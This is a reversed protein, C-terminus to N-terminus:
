VGAACLRPLGDKDIVPTSDILYDAIRAIRGGDRSIFLISNGGCSLVTSEFGNDHFWREMVRIDQMKKRPLVVVSRSGDPLLEQFDIFVGTPVLDSGTLLGAARLQHLTEESWIEM